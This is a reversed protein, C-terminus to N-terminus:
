PSSDCSHQKQLPPESASVLRFGIHQASSNVEAKGRAGPRYRACYDDTCLFSGGKLVRKKAGPQQPDFSSPPGAPNVILEADAVRRAYTDPRYWDVTWEWVNGAVGYLGYGNPSFAMAPSTEIYGDLGSNRHPFAGQFTNAHHRSGTQPEEGWVFEQGDLGGRAAYEWEAETPLRKGIWQAYAQADEFAMHGVPHDWRGKLSSGPGEPQRWNAGHVFRWWSGPGSVDAAIPPPTFVLSGPALASAPVGPFEEPSLPREAVTVYGTADVFTEFQANTVETKDIWFGEVKVVHVPRSDRFQDSGMQFTGPPIWVMGCNTAEESAGSEFWYGFVAVGCLLLSGLAFFGTYFARSKVSVM